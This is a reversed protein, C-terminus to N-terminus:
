NVSVKLPSKQWLPGKAKSCETLRTLPHLTREHLIQNQLCIFVPYLVLGSALAFYDNNPGVEVTAEYDFQILMKTYKWQHHFTMVFTSIDM